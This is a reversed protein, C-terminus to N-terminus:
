RSSSSAYVGDLGDQRRAAACDTRRAAARLDAREGAYDLARTPPCRRSRCAGQRRPRLRRGRTLAKYGLHELALDELPHASRTADLLYSALMTDLRSGACRSATGRWCSRTSSSTTASRASHAPDELLPKLVDLAADLDLRSRTRTAPARRLAGGDSTRALPVYRAQRPRPRSRWGSSAPACRRPRTRCCACPRVAPARAADGRARRARRAIAVVRTTRASRRGRDARVRHGAIPFGLALLARLLARAVAGRYRFADPDFTVPCTPASARAARPEAARRRRARAPGRSVAEQHGRRRQTSCRTSRHRLTAILDRAGKEGIGPVGKINDITDGMLALVDVVQEPTVGFKEKVGAADYWTGEDRPNYVPHRRPRAPLLGQRRHRDGGRVRGARAQTALTGIVDDAEFRESTLIPVGLAECAEHVLPDARRSRRCRRATRRTTPPSSTSPVDPGASRVVRRHVAASSGDLLKRLM